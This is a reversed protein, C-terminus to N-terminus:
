KSVPTVHATNDEALLHAANERTRKAWNTHSLWGLLSIVGGACVILWWVAHTAQSFNAGINSHSGGITGAIAVGLAAGVQRSTSAIAAAVGAQAKPMGSVATNTVPANVLGFGIGFIVYALFMLPIATTDTLGTLILASSAVALGSLLLPLRTGYNGVLKGSLPAFIITAIALPLTCLGTNFASFHRIEQLYLTNLFLFGSFGAFACVAIITASAFPFSKFFRLDILPEFGKAEYFILSILAVLSGSFLSVIFTSTWGERPGEIVASVLCALVSFVLIQGILDVRRAHAAKSEPIYIAAMVMAAIGIPINIWFMSRWGVSQTLAGGIIPGLAMSVGAVAGWIGIAKARAKPEVFTNTIISMAVPNLMTAGLAQLVRAMILANISGATSCWLSGLMFIGMGLQFIRRRGFRDAMSGALMLLSAVVMTYADIIWQLSAISATFEHRISPLGVNVITADMSVMLLSCCCIGLILNPRVPKVAVTHELTKM